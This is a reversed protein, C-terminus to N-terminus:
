QMCVLVVMKIVLFYRKIKPINTTVANGVYCKVKLGKGHTKTGNNTWTIWTLFSSDMYIVGIDTWYSSMYVAAHFFYNDMKIKNINAINSTTVSFYNGVEEPPQLTYKGRINEYLLYTWGVTMWENNVFIVINKDIQLIWDM